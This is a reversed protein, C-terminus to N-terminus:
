RLEGWHAPQTTNIRDHEARLQEAATHDGNLVAAALDRRNAQVAKLEDDTM